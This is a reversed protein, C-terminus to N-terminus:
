GDLETVLEVSKLLLEDGSVLRTQWNGCNGCILRNATATSETGCHSCYVRIPLSEIVLVSQQTLQSTAQAISFAQQLLEPEIGSLVGVQVILREVQIAQHQQAVQEVQALLAQCVSLEHM